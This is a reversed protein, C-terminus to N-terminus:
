TNCLFCNVVPYLRIMFNLAKMRTECCISTLSRVFSERHLVAGTAHGATHRQTTLPLGPWLSAYSIGSLLLLFYFVFSMLLIYLFHIKLLIETFYHIMM